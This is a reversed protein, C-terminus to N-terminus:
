SYNLKLPLMLILCKETDNYISTIILHFQKITRQESLHFLQCYTDPQLQLAINGLNPDSSGQPEMETVSHGSQLIHAPCM